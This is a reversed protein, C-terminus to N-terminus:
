NTKCLPDVFSAGAYWPVCKIKDDTVTKEERKKEKGNIINRM